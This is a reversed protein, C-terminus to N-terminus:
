SYNISVQSQSNQNDDEEGQDSDDEESSEDEYEEESNLPQNQDSVDRAQAEVVFQNGQGLAAINAEFQSEDRNETPMRDLNNGSANKKISLNNTKTSDHMKVSGKRSSRRMGALKRKDMLSLFDQSAFSSPWFTNGDLSILNEDSGVAKKPKGGFCLCGTLAFNSLNKVEINFISRGIQLTTQSGQPLELPTKM